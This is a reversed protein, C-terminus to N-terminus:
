KKGFLKKFWTVLKDLLNPKKAKAAKGKYAKGLAALAHIDIVKEGAYANTSKGLSAAKTGWNGMTVPNWYCGAPAGARLANIMPSNDTDLLVIQNAGPQPGFDNLSQTHYDLVAFEPGASQPRGSGTTAM